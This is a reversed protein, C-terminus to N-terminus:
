EALSETLRDRLQMPTFGNAQVDNLLPLSIKGDPRVPVTRTIETNNWVAIDLVDEPGIKYEASCSDLGPEPSQASGASAVIMALPVAVAIRALPLLRVRM